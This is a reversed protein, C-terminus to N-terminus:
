AKIINEQKHILKYLLGELLRTYEAEDIKERLKKPRRVVKHELWYQIEEETLKNGKHRWDTEDLEIVEIEVLGINDPLEDLKIVGKPAVFSFWTCFKLYNQWKKDQLFDSRTVKIEYGRTQRDWRRFYFLDIRRSEQYPCFESVALDYGTNWNEKELYRLIDEANLTETKSTVKSELSTM